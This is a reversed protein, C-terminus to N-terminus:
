ALSLKLFITVLSMVRNNIRTVSLVQPLSVFIWIIFFLVMFSNIIYVNMKIAENKEKQSTVLDEHVDKNGPLISFITTHKVESYGQVLGLSYNLPYASLQTKDSVVIAHVKTLIFAIAEDISLKSYDITGTSTAYYDKVKKNYNSLLEM